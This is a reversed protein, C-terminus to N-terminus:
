KLLHHTILEEQRVEGHTARLHYGHLAEAGQGPGFRCGYAINIAVSCLLIQGLATHVSVLVTGRLTLHTNNCVKFLRCQNYDKDTFFTPM